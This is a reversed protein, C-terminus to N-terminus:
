KLMDKINQPCNIFDSGIRLKIFNLKEKNQM